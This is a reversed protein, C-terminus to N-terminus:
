EGIRTTSGGVGNSVRALNWQVPEEKIRRVLEM